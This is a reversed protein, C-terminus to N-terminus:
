IRRTAYRVQGGPLAEIPSEYIQVEPLRYGYESGHHKRALVKLM